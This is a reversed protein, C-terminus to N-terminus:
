AGIKGCVDSHVLGIIAKEKLVVNVFGLSWSRMLIYEKWWKMEQWNKCEKLGWTALDAIGVEQRVVLRSPAQTLRIYLTMMILTTCVEKEAGLLWVLNSKADKIECKLKSFRTVKGKKFASTVSFLDYALDPVLLVDHLTCAKTKGNPLKMKLM